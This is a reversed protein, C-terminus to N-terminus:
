LLIEKLEGRRIKAVTEDSLGILVGGHTLHRERIEQAHLYSQTAHAIPLVAVDVTIFVPNATSDVISELDDMTFFGATNLM